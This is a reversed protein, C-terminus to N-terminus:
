IGWALFPSFIFAGLFVPSFSQAFFSRGKGHQSISVFLGPNQGSPLPCTRAPENKERETQTAAKLNLKGGDNQSL